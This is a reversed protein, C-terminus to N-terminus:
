VTSMNGKDQQATRIMNVIMPKRESLLRDFGAADNAQINFNINTVGGGELQNNPTIGGSTSPTFLEPGNEGVIYSEGGMVPGGLARGSYQQSRITAVQALGMAVVGAAAIFNFPPPYTALAKTAGTYTNMIAQAINFAKAAQFAEKNYRGLADFTKAGQDIVFEAKQRENKKEFEVRNAAMEKAEDALFGQRKFEKEFSIERLRDIRALAAEEASYRDIVAQVQQQNYDKLSQTFEEEVRERLEFYQANRHAAEGYYDELSKLREERQQHIIELETRLDSRTQEFAQRRKEAVEEIAAIEQDRSSAAPSPLGTGGAFQESERPGYRLRQNREFDELAQRKRLLESYESNAENVSEAVGSLGLTEMLGETDVRIEPLVSGIIEGLSRFAGVVANIPKELKEFLARRVNDLFGIFDALVEKVVFVVRNLDVFHGTISVITVGLTVWPNIFRLVLAGLARIAAGLTGFRTVTKGATKNVETVVSAIAVFAAGLAAVLRSGLISFIVVRVAEWADALFKVTATLGEIAQRLGVGLSAALKDNTEIFDTMQDLATKLAPSYERGMVNAAGRIAIFLNSFKTSLSDVLNATEGGFDDQIGKQLAALIKRAGEATKGFESIEMRSLDLEERLIRYVPLGATVLQELEELGLGGQVGRAFIRTMADLAQVQNTTVAAADTFTTLLETTPSIGAAQLQIYTSTLDEVSFQTQTAFREIDRFARRGDAASGTVAALSKELDEFEATIRTISSLVASGAIAAVAGQLRGLAREAGRTDANIKLTADAM